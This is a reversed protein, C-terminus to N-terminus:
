RERQLVGDGGIPSVTVPAVDLPVVRDRIAAMSTPTTNAFSEETLRGERIIGMLRTIAMRQQADVVVPVDFPVGSARVRTPIPARKTRM